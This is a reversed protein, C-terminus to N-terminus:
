LHNVPPELEFPEIREQLSPRPQVSDLDPGSPLLERRLMKQPAMPSEQRLRFFCFLVFDVGAKRFSSNAHFILLRYRADSIRVSM